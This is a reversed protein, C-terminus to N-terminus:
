PVYQILSFLFVALFVYEIWWGWRKGRLVAVASILGLVTWTAILIENPTWANGGDDLYAEIGDLQILLAFGGYVICVAIQLSMLIM